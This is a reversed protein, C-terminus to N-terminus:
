INTKYILTNKAGKGTKQVLGLYSLLNLATQATKRPIIAAKSFDASTFEEPLGDPIFLRYDYPESLLVESRLSIPIRDDKTAGKKRGNSYGDLLRLEEAELLCLCVNMRPNDITYKIQYLEPIVDYVSGKKPSRRRETVEGTLPDIWVLYKTVYM